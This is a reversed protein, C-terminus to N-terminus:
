RKQADLPPPSEGRLLGVERHRKYGSAGKTELVVVDAALMVACASDGADRM